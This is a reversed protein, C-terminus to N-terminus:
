PRTRRRSSARGLEHEAEVRLVPEDVGPPINHAIVMEPSVKVLAIVGITLATVTLITFQMVETIVVSVMGGKIAYVATLGMLVM